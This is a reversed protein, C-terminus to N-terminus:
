KKRQKILFLAIATLWIAPILIVIILGWPMEIPPAPITITVTAMGVNNAQDKVTLTVNYTGPERFFHFVVVGSAQSGDGFDWYYSVIKTTLDSSSSADFTVNWKYTGFIIKAEPNEPSYTFSAAPPTSDVTFEVVTSNGINGEPDSAYIVLTHKGDQVTITTNGAITVNAQEDINYSIWSTEENVTFILNIESKNYLADQLPSLIDIVPAPNGVLILSEAIECYGDKFTPTGGIVEYWVIPEGESDGLLIKQFRLYTTGVSVTANLTITAVTYNGSIPAYGGSIARNTDKYTYAYEVHDDAVVHKLKWINDEESPPTVTSFLVEEMSVGKLVNPNWSLSFQVGFLAEVNTICVSVNFIEGQTVTLTRPEIGVTIVGNQAKLKGVLNFNMLIVTMLLLFTATRRTLYNKVYCVKQALFSVPRM